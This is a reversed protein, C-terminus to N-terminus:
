KTLKLIKRKNWKMWLDKCADKKRIKKCGSLKKRKRGFVAIKRL